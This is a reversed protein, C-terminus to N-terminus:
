EISVEDNVKRPVFFHKKRKVAVRFGHRSIDVWVVIDLVQRNIYFFRSRIYDFSCLIDTYTYDYARFVVVIGKNRVKMFARFLADGIHREALITTHADSFYPVNVLLINKPKV